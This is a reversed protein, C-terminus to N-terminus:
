FDKTDVQHSISYIVLHGSKAIPNKCVQRANKSSLRIERWKVNWFCEHKINGSLHIWM